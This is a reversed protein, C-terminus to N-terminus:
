RLQDIKDPFEPIANHMLSMEKLTWRPSVSTIMPPLPQPLLVSSRCIMPDIFGVEPETLIKPSSIVVIFSRSIARTRCRNPISNWDPASARRM